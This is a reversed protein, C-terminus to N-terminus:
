RVKMNKKFEWLILGENQVMAKIICTKNKKDVAPVFSYAGNDLMVKRTVGSGDDFLVQLSEPFIMEPVQLRFTCKSNKGGKLVTDKGDIVASFTGDILSVVGYKGMLAVIACDDAFDNAYSFQAPVIVAGDADRYGWLGDEAFPEIDIDFLPEPYDDTDATERYGDSEVFAFDRKRTPDGTLKYNKEVVNGNTNIVAYDSYGNKFYEVLALGDENFTTAQYLEGRHFDVALPTNHRDVYRAFRSRADGSVVVAWGHSFPYAKQYTCPIVVRGRENLYGHEKRANAVVVLGESFYSYFTTYLEDEVPILDHRSEGFLGKIRYANGKKELVLAYGGNFTTVSDADSVLIEGDIDILQIKGNKVCKFVDNCYYSIDDYQPPVLWTVTSAVLSIAPLCLFALVLFLNNKMTQTNEQFLYM